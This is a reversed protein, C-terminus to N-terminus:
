EHKILNWVARWNLRTIEMNVWNIEIIKDLILSLKEFSNLCRCQEAYNRPLYLEIRSFFFSLLSRSCYKFLLM